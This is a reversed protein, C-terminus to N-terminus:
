QMHVSWCPGALAVLCSNRHKQAQKLGVVMSCMWLSSVCWTAKVAIFLIHSLFSLSFFYLTREEFDKYCTLHQVVWIRASELLIFSLFLFFSFFIAYCKCGSWPGPMLTLALDHIFASWMWGFHLRQFGKWLWLQLKWLGSYIYISNQGTSCPFWYFEM